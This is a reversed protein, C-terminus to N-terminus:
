HWYSLAALGAGLVVAGALGAIFVIRRWPTRLIVEGGRAKDAEIIQRHPAM